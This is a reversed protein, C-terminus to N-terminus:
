LEGRKVGLYSGRHQVLGTNVAKGIVALSYHPLRGSCGLCPYRWSSEFHPWTALGIPCDSSFPKCVCQCEKKKTKYSSLTHASLLPHRLWGMGAAGMSWTLEM